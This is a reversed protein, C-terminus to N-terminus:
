VVQESGSRLRETAFAEAVELPVEADTIAGGLACPALVDFEHGAFGEPPLASAGHESAVLAAREVDVGGLAPGLVTSHVAIAGTAGTEPEQFVHLEEHEFEGALPDHNM